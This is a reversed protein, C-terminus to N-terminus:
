FHVKLRSLAMFFIYRQPKAGQVRNNPRLTRLQSITYPQSQTSIPLKALHNKILSLCYAFSSNSRCPANEWNQKQL